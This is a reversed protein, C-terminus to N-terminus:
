NVCFLEGNPINPIPMAFYLPKPPIHPSTLENEDDNFANLLFHYPQDTTTISERYCELFIMLMLVCVTTM